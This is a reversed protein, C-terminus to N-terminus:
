LRASLNVYINRGPRVYQGWDLHESYAKNFINEIGTSIEIHVPKIVLEYAVRLHYVSFSPTPNEGFSHSVRNQSSSFEGEAQVSLSKQKFRCLSFNKLPPILPLPDQM